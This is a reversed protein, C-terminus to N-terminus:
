LLKMAERYIEALPIHQADAIEKASEYEVYKKEIEGYRCVKLKVQGFRTKVSVNQRQMTIRQHYTVRVGITSTQAFIISAMQQLQTKQCIVSLMAAPRNKKMQIPTYWVDLVGAEWLKEMTYGLMEPTSDDINTQILAVENEQQQGSDAQSEGLMARLIKAQRFKRSGAGYGIAQVRFHVVTEFSDCLAAVIAAGTPTIMEGENDTITFPIHYASLIQATAPAPVPMMGHACQVQGRGECLTSCCIRDPKIQDILVATGVIDVISDVAGVEHFHVQDVPKNHVKAEAQAVIEFIKLALQKANSSIQSNEIIYTIDALNRHHHQHLQQAHHEQHEPIHADGHAPCHEEHLQHANELEVDFFQARIGDVMTEQIKLQYGDIPLSQIAQILQQQYDAGGLDMLAAVTMNGAIGSYAELYLTKM